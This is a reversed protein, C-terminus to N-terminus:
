SRINKITDKASTDKKTEGVFIVNVSGLKDKDVLDYYLQGFRDVWGGRIVPIELKNLKLNGYEDFHSSIMNKGADSLLIARMMLEYNSFSSDMKILQTGITIGDDFQKKLYTEVDECVFQVDVSDVGDIGEVIAIIDSKPLTDKRDFSVFYTSLDEIVKNRISDKSANEWNTIHINIAYKKFIPDKFYLVSNLIKQGSEDLRVQIKGKEIDTLRFYEYPVTFYNEGQRFRTKINPILLAYIVNDLWPSTPNFDTFVDIYSFM